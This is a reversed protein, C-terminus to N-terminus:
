KKQLDSNLSYDYVLYENNTLVEIIDKLVINDRNLFREFAEKTILTLYANIEIITEIYDKLIELKDVSGIEVSYARNITKLESLCSNIFDLDFSGCFRILFALYHSIIDKLSSYKTIDQPIITLFELNNAISSKPLMIGKIKERPIHGKVVVEDPHHIFVKSPDSEYEIDEVILNIGNKTHIDYATGIASYDINSVKVCSIYDDNREKIHYNKIVDVGKKHSENLSLIGTKMVNEIRQLNQGVSHLLTEDNLEYEM